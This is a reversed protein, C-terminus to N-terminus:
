TGTSRGPRGCRTAHEENEQAVSEQAKAPTIKPRGSLYRATLIAEPYTEQLMGRRNGACGSELKESLTELNTERDTERLGDRVVECFAGALIEPHKWSTTADGARSSHGVDTVPTSKWHSELRSGLCASLIYRAPAVPRINKRIRSCLVADPSGVVRESVATRIRGPHSQATTAPRSLSVTSVLPRLPMGFTEQVGRRFPDRFLTQDRLAIGKTEWLNGWVSRPCVLNFTEFITKRRSVRFVVPM